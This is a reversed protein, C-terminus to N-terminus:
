APFSRELGDDLSQHARAALQARRRFVQELRARISRVRRARDKGAELQALADEGNVRARGKACANASMM